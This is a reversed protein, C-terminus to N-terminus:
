RIERYSIIKDVLKHKKAEKATLYKHTTSDGFVQTFEHKSMSLRKSILEQMQNNCWKYHKYIEEGAGSSEMLSWSIVNHYFFTSAPTCHRVDGATYILLAASGVFGVGLTLIPNEITRLIDYIALGSYYNGGPSNLIVQIPAQKDLTQLALLQGIVRSATENTIETTIEVSRTTPGFYSNERPWLQFENPPNM